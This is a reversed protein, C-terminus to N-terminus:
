VQSAISEMFNKFMREQLQLLERISVSVFEADECGEVAEASSSKSSSISKSPM